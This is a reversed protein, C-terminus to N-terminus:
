QPLSGSPLALGVGDGEERGFSVGGCGPCRVAPSCTLDVLQIVTSSVCVIYLINFEM